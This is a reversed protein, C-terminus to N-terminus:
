RTRPRRRGPSMRDLMRTALPPPIKEHLAMVGERHCDRLRKGSGCPCSWHGKPRQKSLVELYAYLQNEEDPLGLVEACAEEFGKQFHSWEGFPWEGNIEYYFQSLFFEYAPGTLFAEFSVDPATALWVEWVTLCCTGDWSVHRDIERPIRGGVEFVRPETKPFDTVLRIHVDYRCIPPATGPTAVREHLQYKGRVVIERGEQVAYLEPQCCTLVLRVDELRLGRLKREVKGM